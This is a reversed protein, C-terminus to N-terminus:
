RSIFLAAVIGMALLGAALLVLPVSPPPMTKPHQREDASSRNTRGVLLAVSISLVAAGIALFIVQSAPM